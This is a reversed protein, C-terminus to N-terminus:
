STGRIVVDRLKKCKPCFFSATTSGTRIPMSNKNTSQHGCKSCKKRYHVVDGDQSVIIAGQIAEARRKREPTRGKSSPGPVPITKERADPDSSAPPEPDEEIPVLELTPEPPQFVVGLVVGQLLQRALLKPKKTQSDIPTPCRTPALLLCRKM